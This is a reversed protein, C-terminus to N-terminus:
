EKYACFANVTLPNTATILPPVPALVGVNALTLKPKPFTSLVLSTSLGIELFTCVANFELALKSSGTKTPKGSAGVAFTPVLVM